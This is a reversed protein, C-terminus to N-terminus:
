KTYPFNKSARKMIKKILDESSSGLGGKSGYAYRWLLNGTTDHIALTATVENTAGSGASGFVSVAIAEGETLLKSVMARGSVVADVNLYKCLKGKDTKMIEQYSLKTRALLSNSKDIDQFNISYRDIEKLFYTYASNQMSYGIKERSDKLSEMTFNKPLTRANLSIDFPLIAVTKIQTKSEDAIVSKYVSPGCSVMCILNVLIFYKLKTM